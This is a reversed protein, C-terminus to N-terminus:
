HMHGVNRHCRICSTESQEDHGEIALVIAQHCKRCAAETVRVNRHTIQIPEHFHGSTFYFSHWFGNLAKTVYKPVFGAPTHCDNCVAVARHSSRTWGTYQESMVHCNACADPNDTLYSAGKAYIFTYGGIGVAVGILVGLLIGAFTYKRYRSVIVQRSSDEIQTGTGPGV